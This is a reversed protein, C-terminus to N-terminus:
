TGLANRAIEVITAAANPWLAKVIIILLCTVGAAIVALFTRRWYVRLVKEKSAGAVPEKSADADPVQPRKKSGPADKIKTLDTIAWRYHDRKRSATEWKKEFEAVFKHAYLGLLIIGVALPSMSLSFGMSGIVSLFVGAITLFMVSVGHRQTETHRGHACQEGYLALLAQLQRQKEENSVPDDPM